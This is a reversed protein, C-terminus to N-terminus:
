SGSGSGSGCATLEILPLSFELGSCPITINLFDGWIYSGDIYLNYLMSVEEDFVVAEYEAPDDEYAFVELDREQMYITCDEKYVDRLASVTVTAISDSGDASASWVEIDFLNWTIPGGATKDLDTVVTLNTTSFDLPIVAQDDCTPVGHTEVTFDFGRPRLDVDVVTQRLQYWANFTEWRLQIFNYIIYGRLPTGPIFPRNLLNKATTPVALGTAAFDAVYECAFNTVSLDEPACDIGDNTLDCIAIIAGAGQMSNIVNTINTIAQAVEGPSCPQKNIRQILEETTAM